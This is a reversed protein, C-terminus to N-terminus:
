LHSYFEDCVLIVFHFAHISRPPVHSRNLHVQFSRSLSLVLVLEVSHFQNTKLPSLPFVKGKGKSSLVRPSFSLKGYFLVVLAGKGQKQSVSLVAPCSRSRMPKCHPTPPVKLVVVRYNSLELIDKNVFLAASLSSSLRSILPFLFAYLCLSPSKRHFFFEREGEKWLM